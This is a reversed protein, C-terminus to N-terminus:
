YIRGAYRNVKADCQCDMAGMQPHKQGIDGLCLYVTSNNVPSGIDVGTIDSIGMTVSLVGFCHYLILKRVILSLELTSSLYPGMCRKPKTFRQM